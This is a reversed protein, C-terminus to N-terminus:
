RRALELLKEAESNCPRLGDLSQAFMDDFMIRDMRELTKFLAGENLSPRYLWLLREGNEHHSVIARPPDYRPAFAQEGKRAGPGDELVEFLAWGPRM